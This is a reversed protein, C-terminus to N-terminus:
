QPDWSARVLYLRNEGVMNEVPTEGEAESTGCVRLNRDWSRTRGRYAGGM